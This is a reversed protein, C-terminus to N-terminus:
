TFCLLPYNKSILYAMIILKEQLSIDERWGDRGGGVFVHFGKRTKKGKKCLFNINQVSYAKSKRCLGMM